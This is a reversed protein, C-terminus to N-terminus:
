RMSQDTEGVEDDLENLHMKEGIQHTKRNGYLDEDDFLINSKPDNAFGVDDDVGIGINEDGSM